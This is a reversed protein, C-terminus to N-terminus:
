KLALRLFLFHLSPMLSMKMRLSTLRTVLHSLFTGEKSLGKGLFGTGEQHCIRVRWCLEPKKAVTNWLLFTSVSM